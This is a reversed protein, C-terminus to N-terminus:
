WIDSKFSYNQNDFIEPPSYAMDIAIAKFNKTISSTSAARGFDGIKIIKNHLFINRFYFVLQIKAVM